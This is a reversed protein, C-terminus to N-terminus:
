TVAISQAAWRLASSRAERPSGREFALNPPRLDSFGPSTSSSGARAKGADARITFDESIEGEMLAQRLVRVGERQFDVDGQREAKRVLEALAMSVRDAM